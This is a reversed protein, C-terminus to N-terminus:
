SFKFRREYNDVVDEIWKDCKSSNYKVADLWQQLLTTHGRKNYKKWTTVIEQAIELNEVINNVDCRHAIEKIMELDTKAHVEKVDKEIVIKGGKIIMKDKKKDFGEKKREDVYEKDYGKLMEPELRGKSMYEFPKEGIGMGVMYDGSKLNLTKKIRDRVTKPSKVSCGECIGHIHDRAVDDDAEHQYFAFKDFENFVEDICSKFVDSSVSVRFNYAAM